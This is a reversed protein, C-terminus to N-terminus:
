PEERLVVGRLTGLQGLADLARPIAGEPTSAVCRLAGYRDYMGGREDVALMDLRAALEGEGTFRPLVSSATRDAWSCENLKSRM